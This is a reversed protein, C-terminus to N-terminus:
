SQRRTERPLPMTLAAYYSLKAAERAVATVDYIPPVLWGWTAPDLLKRHESTASPSSSELKSVLDTLARSRVAFGFTDGARLERAVAKRPIRHQRLFSRMRRADVEVHLTGGKPFRLRGLPDVIPWECIGLEARGSFVEDVVVYRLRATPVGKIV